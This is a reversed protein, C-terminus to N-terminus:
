LDDVSGKIYTRTFRVMFGTYGCTARVEHSGDTLDDDVYIPISSWVAKREHPKAVEATVTSKLQDVSYIQTNAYVGQLATRWTTRAVGDKCSAYHVVSVVEVFRDAINAVRSCVRSINEDLRPASKCGNSAFALVATTTIVSIMEITKM